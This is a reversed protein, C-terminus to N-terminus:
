ITNTIVRFEQRQKEPIKRLFMDEQLTEVIGQWAAAAIATNSTGTIENNSLHAYYNAALVINVSGIEKTDLLVEDDNIVSRPVVLEYRSEQAEATEPDFYDIPSDGIIKKIEDLIKVDINM